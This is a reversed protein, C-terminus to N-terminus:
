HMGTTLRLDNLLAALYQGNIDYAIINNIKSKDSTYRAAKPFRPDNLTTLHKKLLFGIGGWCFNQIDECYSRESDPLTQIPSSDSYYQLM